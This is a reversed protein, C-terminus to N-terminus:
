ENNNINLDLLMADGYSFFRMKHEIAYKYIKMIKAYGAFAAVLMLLTSKPLHLNTILRDVINFKYGPKIFIDIDKTGNLLKKENAFAELTRLTTTGNATIRKGEAKAKNIREAVDKSITAFESHMIHKDIDESKVPLFTGAGVHLTIFLIEVGRLALEDILQKTYHLSATPSAVSGQNKAFITQYRELDSNEQDRKIYPPIPIKGYKDLFEFISIGRELHFKILITGNDLKKFISLKHEGFKFEDNEKLYKAPRAFASWINDGQDKNLNVYIARAQHTLEIEANIVKSDNFVLIDGPRFHDIINYFKTLNFSDDSPILLNSHDRKQAPHNAILEKPLDYDFDSLTYKKM